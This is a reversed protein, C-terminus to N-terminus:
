HVAPADPPVPEVILASVLYVVLGNETGFVNEKLWHGSHLRCRWMNKDSEGVRRQLIAELGQMHEALAARRRRKVCALATRPTFCGDDDRLDALTVSYTTVLHTWDDPSDDSVVKNKRLLASVLPLSNYTDMDDSLRLRGLEWIARQVLEDLGNLKSQEM